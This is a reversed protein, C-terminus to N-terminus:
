CKGEFRDVDFVAAFDFDFFVFCTLLAVSICCNHM